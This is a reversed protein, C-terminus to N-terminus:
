EASTALASISQIREVLLPQRAQSARDGPLFGPLAEIFSSDRVLRGFTVALFNRVDVASAAVERVIEERGDIVAIVDELDHSMAYDERGRAEFAALKTALFHPATVLRIVSGSPLTVQEAASLASAYWANGFGLIGTDTPMVDLVVPPASWRCIPADESQDERFGRERLREAFRYYERLSAVEVIVDVDATVRVPAAAVDTLLLGVASGGLFVPDEVLAGLRAVALELTDMNPNQGEAMPM